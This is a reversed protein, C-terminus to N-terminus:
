KKLYPQFSNNFEIVYPQVVSIKKDKIIVKLALGSKTAESFNQDFIFNGLSYAVTVGEVISVEQVVHPHHGVIFSAGAKVAVAAVRRQRENSETEYERGWHFSVIVLDSKEKAVKIDNIMEEEELYAIGAQDKKAARSAPLLDTYALFSTKIGNIEQYSGNHAEVFDNGGGVYALGAEKLNILTDLFADLGYDFAHNNAVSLVSFGAQKLGLAALPNARFSYLNGVSQGKNSIPSELNAFVLDAAALFPTIKAFPFNYDQNKEMQEGIYRSLMVDGVFIFEASGTDRDAELYVASIYSTSSIVASTTYDQSNRQALIDPSFNFFDKQLRTQVYLAAVSDINEPQKLQLINEGQRSKIADISILDLKQAEIPTLYHSFDTSQIILTEAPLEKKLIDIIQDLESQSTEAKFTIATLKATPFYYRIFPLINQVGHERYFFDGEGVFSLKKLHASIDTDTKVEGFVTSFDRETVSIDKQGASFHDPSLLVINQYKKTAVGAFSDALLDIALLHHPVILGTVKKDIVQAESQKIASLFLSVDLYQSGIPENSQNGAGENINEGVKVVSLVPQNNKLQNKRLLFSGAFIVLGLFIAVIIIIINRIKM